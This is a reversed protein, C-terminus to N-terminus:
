CQGTILIQNNQQVSADSVHFRTYFQLVKLLPFDWAQVNGIHIIDVNKGWVEFM